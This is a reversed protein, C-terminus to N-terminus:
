VWLVHLGVWYSMTDTLTSKFVGLALSNFHLHLGLQKMGSHLAALSPYM